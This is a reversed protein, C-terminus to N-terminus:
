YRKREKGRLNKEWLCLISKSECWKKVEGVSAEGDCGVRTLQGCNLWTTLDELVIADYMLMKEHWSPQAPDTTRPATTVAKTIYTFLCTQQNTPSTALSLETDEDVTLSLDVPQAPSFTPEPSSCPSASSDGEADSQSDPIEIVRRPAKEKRKPTAPAPSRDKFAEKASTPAAIRPSPSGADKRPRGRPRRPSESPKRPRGRPRKEKATAFTSGVVGHGPRASEQRCRTLLAVMATRKKIPKFGYQAVQKALQADSYREFSPEPPPMGSTPQCESADKYQRGDDEERGNTMRHQNEALSGTQPPSEICAPLESGSLNSSVDIIELPKSQGPPMLIDSLNVFSDDDRAEDVALLEPLSIVDDRDCRVYGFPDAETAPEPLGSGDAFNRVEVDFLDGDADRAGADWLTQRKEPPELADSNLPTTFEVLDLQNSARMVAQLDRLLTPSQERALQSSTGFVFDQRAVQNLAAGPSLLIPKPPPQKKKSTKAPRKRPKSKGNGIAAPKTAGSGQHESVPAAVQDPQTQPRYAATAIETITRTKKKPAKRRTPSQDPKVPGPGDVLSTPVLELLKRKRLFSSDESTSNSGTEQQLNQSCKFSALLNEFPESTEGNRRKAPPTWDTRRTMAVELNLPENEAEKVARAKTSKQPEPSKFYCSRIQESDNDPVSEPTPGDRANLKSETTADATNKSPSKYKKWPQNDAHLNSDTSTEIPAEVRKPAARNRRRPKRKQPADKSQIEIVSVSTDIEELATQNAVRPNSSSKPSDDAQLSRWLSGASTFTTTANQPIPASKSGSKLPPRPPKQSLIDQISPLEPSSSVAAEAARLGPASLAFRM